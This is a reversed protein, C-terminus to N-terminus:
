GAALLDDAGMMLAVGAIVELVRRRSLTGIKRLVQQRDITAIQTVNAVSPKPLNGEGRGLRVNGPIHQLKLTSSILVVVLTNIASENFRDCQLVIAPHEYGPASGTPRGFDAWVVDGQLSVM